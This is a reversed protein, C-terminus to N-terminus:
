QMKSQRRERDIVCYARSVGLSGVRSLIFVLSLADSSRVLFIVVREVSGIQSVLLSFDVLFIPLLFLFRRLLCRSLRRNTFISSSLLSTNRTAGNRSDVNICRLLTRRRFAKVTRRPFVKIAKPFSMFPLFRFYLSVERVQGSFNRTKCFKSSPGNDNSV